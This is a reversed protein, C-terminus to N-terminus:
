APTIARSIPIGHTVSTIFATFTTGFPDFTLSSPVCPFNYIKYPTKNKTLIFFFISKRITKIPSIFITFPFISFLCVLYADVHPIQIQELM